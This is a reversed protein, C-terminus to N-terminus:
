PNAGEVVVAVSSRFRLYIAMLAGYLVLLMLTLTGYSIGYRRLASDWIFSSSIFVLFFGALIACLALKKYARTIDTRLCLVSLAFAPAITTLLQAKRVEPSIMLMVLFMIGLEMMTGPGPSTGKGRRWFAVLTCAVIAGCVALAIGEAAPPSLNLVNIEMTLKHASRKPSPTLYAYVTALLSNGIVHKTSIMNGVDTTGQEVFSVLLARHKEYGLFLTPFVLVWFVVGVLIAGAARWNRKALFYVVFAIPMYKISAALAVTFGGFWPKKRVVILWLGLVTLSFVPLNWQGLNFNDVVFRVGVLLALIWVGIGAKKLGTLQSHCGLAWLLLVFNAAFWLGQAIPVPVLTFPVYLVANLPFYRFPRGEMDVHGYPNEGVAVIRSARLTRKSFDGRWNWDEPNSSWRFDHLSVAAAVIVLLLAWSLLPRRKFLEAVYHWANHIKTLIASPATM